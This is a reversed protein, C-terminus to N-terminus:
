EAIVEMFVRFGIAPSPATYKKVQPIQCHLEDDQWSGGKAKGTEQIMEAVNGAMNYLGFNNPFYSGVAVPFFGGDNAVTHKDPCDGCPKTANLNALYCGKNNRVYHGGWPYSITDIGGRAAIEWEAETPLRFLVKTYKKKDTSANYVQTMWACYLQAADYSINQIPANAADPHYNEFLVADSLNQQDAALLARWDTKVTKCKGLQEFDRNKLLDQLFLEYQSNSTETEAAWIHTGAKKMNKEFTRAPVMSVFSDKKEPLFFAQVDAERNAAHAIQLTVQQLDTAQDTQGKAMYYRYLSLFAPIYNLNMAAIKAPQPEPRLPQRLYDTLFLHEYNHRLVAMNDFPPTSYRFTLGTLYLNKQYTELLQKDLMVGLYVPREAQNLLLNQLLDKPNSGSPVPIPGTSFFSKYAEKDFLQLSLVVVDPRVNLAYQLVWAPYTDEENQTILLASPELGIMANYNWNLEGPSCTGSAYWDRCVAAVKAQDGQLSAARINVLFDAATKQAIVSHATLPCTCTFCLLLLFVPRNM